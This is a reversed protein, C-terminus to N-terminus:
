KSSAELLDIRKALEQTSKVLLAILQMTDIKLLGTDGDVYTADPMVKVYEQAIFGYNLRNDYASYEENYYFSVPRLEKLLETANNLEEITNKTKIDSFLSLAGLALGGALKVFGGTKNSDAQRDISRSRRQSIKDNAWANWEAANVRVKGASEAGYIRAQNSIDDAYISDYGSNKRRLTGMARSLNNGTMASGAQSLPGGTISWSSPQFTRAM